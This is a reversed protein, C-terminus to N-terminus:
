LNLTLNFYDIILKKLSTRKKLMSLLPSIKGLMKYNKQLYFRRELTEFLRVSWDGDENYGDVLKTRLAYDSKIYLDADKELKENKIAQEGNM